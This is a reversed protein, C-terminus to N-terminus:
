LYTYVFKDRPSTHHVDPSFPGLLCATYTQQSGKLGRAEQQLCSLGQPLFSEPFILNDALKSPVMNTTPLLNRSHSRAVTMILKVGHCISLHKQGPLLFPSPPEPARRSQPSPQTSIASALCIFPDSNSGRYRSLFWWTQLGLTGITLHSVASLSWFSAQHVCFLLSHRVCHPFDPSVLSTPHQGRVKM